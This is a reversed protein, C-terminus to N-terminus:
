SRPGGLSKWRWATLRLPAVRVGARDRWAIELTIRKGGPADAAAAPEIEIDLTADDLRDLTAPSLDFEAARRENLQDFELATLREMLNAAERVAQERQQHSRRANATARLLQVSLAVLALTVAIAVALDLLMSGTRQLRNM